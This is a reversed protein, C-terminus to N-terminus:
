RAGHAIRRGPLSEASEVDDGIVGARAWILDAGTDRGSQTTAGADHLISVLAVIRPAPEALRLRQARQGPAEANWQQDVVVDVQRDRDCCIAHVQSAM